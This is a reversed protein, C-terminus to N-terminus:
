LKSHIEQRRSMQVVRVVERAGVLAFCAATLTPNCANQTPIVGCGGLFLNDFRWVRSNRDVVSKGDDEKGARTVGCIHMAAGPPLFRPEAGPLFEGLDSAIKKMDDMMARSREADEEGIRYHILPQPMGFPDNMGERFEVYNDYVPKVYGFYRIDLILRPDVSHPETNYHFPDRQIQTHWPFEKSVPSTIQPSPDNFPIRLPDDIFRRHHAQSRPNDWSPKIFSPQLAVQCVAMTQETLYRGLAPCGTDPRIRSNYLIGATLTAGACIVYARAQIIIVENTLLDRLEAGVVKKSEADLLVRTCCHRARLEFNGVDYKPAALDGLIRAPGTWRVYDPNRISRECALPLNTFERGKNARVLIDKVLHHRVSIDFEATSTRFLTKAQCYLTDWEADTFIDPRELEAHMEPTACSWYSGMGGVSRVVGEAPLNNPARIDSDFASNQISSPVTKSSNGTTVPESLLAMGGKVISTYRSSDQQVVVHNKKHEGILRDEQEGIEVMMVRIGPDADIISRAYVAGIPGSGVILVDTDLMKSVTETKRDYDEAGNCKYSRSAVEENMTPDLQFVGSM